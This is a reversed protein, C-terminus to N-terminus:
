TSLGRSPLTYAFMSGIRTDSALEKPVYNPRAFVDNTPPLATGPARVQAAYPGSDRRVALSARASAPALLVANTLEKM